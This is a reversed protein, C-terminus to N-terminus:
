FVSLVNGTLRNEQMYRKYSPDSEKYTTYRNNGEYVDEIIIGKGYLMGYSIENGTQIFDPAAGADKLANLCDKTYEYIKTYLQDNNMTEWDKPTWQKSPDAWTDSYHFDLMFSLGADKIKKGLTKVFEIDQCAGQGKEARTANNPDVFLRVRMSNLGQNKLFTLLDTISNGNLDFYKAGNAEYKTLLSIDGGVYKQASVTTVAILTILTLLAKKM